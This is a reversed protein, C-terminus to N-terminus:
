GVTALQTVAAGDLAGRYLRLDSMLGAFHADAGAGITLPCDTDLEFDGPHFPTSCSQLAGDVYLKLRRGDKVAAVHHWGGPFRRDWTAMKGAEFSRVRGSPLTGAYLRGDRIAMSWVRRLQVPSEDLTALHTFEDGDMRWVHAMPLSGAYLKGNYFTMAMIEMEYGLRDLSQWATDGGYRFIKGEPWTGVYLEGRVTAAGYTQTSGKPSGCHTWEDGGEYRYVPGGNALAHLAGRFVTMTMIRQDPGIWTWDREGEYRYVGPLHNSVAYLSDNWVNLAFTDDAKGVNYPGTDQEDPVGAENGPHGCDTWEGGPSVRFVQGGPTANLTEGLRSGVCAYRGVSCYLQGDFEVLGHVTNCGVPNGLDAWDQGGAYRWLHGCEAAGTELTGAYLTENIVSLAHLNVANGPRGCDTWTRDARANDIGFTLQRSNALATSTAGDNTHVYLHFGRRHDPNFKGLITGVVDQGPDTHIWVAVSFDDRGFQLAPHDPITLCSTTGNFRVGGGARNGPRSQGPEVDVPREALDVAGHHRTDGAFPWHAILDANMSM